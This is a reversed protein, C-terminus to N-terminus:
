QSEVFGDPRVYSAGQPQRLINVQEQLNPPVGVTDKAFGAEFLGSRNPIPDIAGDIFIPRATFHPQVPQYLSLDIPTDAKSLWVKMEANSVKRDLWYCLHVKIKDQTIGMSSSFQYHCDVDQFEEPLKFVTYRIIEEQQNAIDTFRIPLGLEDIDILCWQRSAPNFNSEHHNYQNSKGTRRINNIPRGEILSGRIVFKNPSNELITLLSSLERLSCVTYEELDFLYSLKVPLSNLKGNELSFRKINIDLQQSKLVTIIEYATSM